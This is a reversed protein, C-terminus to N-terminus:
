SIYDCLISERCYDYKKLIPNVSNARYVHSQNETSVSKASPKMDIINKKPHPNIPM